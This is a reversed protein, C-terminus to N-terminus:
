DRTAGAGRPQDEGLADALVELRKMVPASSTDISGEGSSLRRVPGREAPRSGASRRGNRNSGTSSSSAPVPSKGPPTIYHRNLYLLSRASRHPPAGPEAARPHRVAVVKAVLVAHDAVLLRERPLLRCTLVARSAANLDHVTARGSSGALARLTPPAGSFHQALVAAAHTAALFHIKFTQAPTGPRHPFSPPSSGMLADYTSSPLRINFTVLADPNLSLTTLTSLTLGRAPSDAKTEEERPPLRLIVVPAPTHRMVVRVASPVDEATSTFASETEPLTTTAQEKPQPIGTRAENPRFLSRGAGITETELKTVTGRM